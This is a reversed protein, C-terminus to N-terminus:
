YSVKNAHIQCFGHIWFLIENEFQCRTITKIILCGCLLRSRIFTLFYLRVGNASKIMYKYHVCVSSCVSSRIVCRATSFSNGLSYNLFDVMFSGDELSAASAFVYTVVM